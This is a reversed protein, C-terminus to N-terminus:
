RAMSARRRPDRRRACQCTASATGSVLYETEAYGFPKLDYWSDWMAHGHIGAPPTTLSPTPVPPAAQSPMGGALLLAATVALVKWRHTM